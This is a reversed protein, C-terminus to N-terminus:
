ANFNIILAHHCWWISCIEANGAKQAPFEGAMPSNGVCLGTVRLKSTKKWRRRFWCNLLRHLRQHNSVGGCGNHGWQIPFHLDPLPKLKDCLLDYLQQCGNWKAYTLQIMVPTSRSSLMEFQILEGLRHIHFVPRTHLSGSTSIFSHAVM